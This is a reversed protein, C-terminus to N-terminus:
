LLWQILHPKGGIFLCSPGYFDLDLGHFRGMLKHKAPHSSKFHMFHHRSWRATHEGSMAPTVFVKEM